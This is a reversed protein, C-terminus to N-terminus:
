QTDLLRSFGESEYLKVGSPTDIEIYAEYFDLSNVLALAQDVPMVSLATSYADVLAGNVGIVTVTRGETLGLGTKPDIIHSYRQGDIVTYQFLDGSTALASNELWLMRPVPRGDEKHATLQIPWGPEGPPANSAMLDGGADVLASEVGFLLLVQMMREATFGKGIGGPDLQMGPRLLEAYGDSLVVHHQGVREALSDLVVQEPLRAGTQRRLSRWLRVYPGATIDFAGDSQEWVLAAKELLELLETGVPVREGSGATASLRSLESQADYDSLLGNLEHAKAFASDAAARALERDRTYMTIRFTTGMLPETFVYRQVEHKPAAEPLSFGREEMARRALEGPSAADQSSSSAPEASGCATTSLLTGALLVFCVLKYMVRVMSLSM